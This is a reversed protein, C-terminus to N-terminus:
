SLRSRRRVGLAMLLLGGAWLSGGENAGSSSCGGPGPPVHIERGQGHLEITRDPQQEGQLRLQLEGTFERVEKPQFTVSLQTTGGPPLEKGPELAEVTFVDSGVVEPVLVRTAISSRNTVTLLTPKISQGLDVWGFDVKPSDVSLISSVMEGSLKVRTVPISDDGERTWAELVLDAHSLGVQQAVYSLLLDCTEGMRIEIQQPISDTLRCAGDPELEFDDKQEGELTYTKVYIPRDLQNQLPFRVTAKKRSLRQTGFDVTWQFDKFGSFTGTAVGQLTRDFVSGTLTKIHVTATRQGAAGKGPKFRLEVTALGGAPPLPLPSKLPNVLAFDTADTGDITVGTISDAVTGDNSVTLSKEVAATPEEMDCTGFIVDQAPVSVGRKGVGLDVKTSPNVAENTTITLKGETRGDSSPTVRLEIGQQQKNKLVPVLQLVDDNLLTQVCTNSAPIFVCFPSDVSLSKIVLPAAGDNQLTLAKALQKFTGNESIPTGFEVPADLATLKSSIGVGDLTILVNPETQDNSTFTVTAPPSLPTTSSPSFVIQLVAPPDQQPLVKLPWTYSDPDKLAFPPAFSPKNIYLPLSGVNKITLSNASSTGIPVSGFGISRSSFVASAVGGQGSLTVTTVGTTTNVTGGTATSTIELQASVLSKSTPKFDINISETTGPDIDKPWALAGLVFADASTGKISIASLRLKATGHNAIILPKSQSNNVEVAGFPLKDDVSIVATAATGMLNIKIPNTGPLKTIAGRYTITLSDSYTAKDLSSPKFNVWVDLSSGVNVQQSAYPGGVMSFETSNNDISVSVIELSEYASAANSLTVKMPAAASDGIRRVGFDLKDSPTFNANPRSSAGSVKLQPSDLAKSSNDVYFQFTTEQKGQDGATFVVNFSLTGGEKSVTRPPNLGEISFSTSAMLPLIGNVLLDADGTNKLTVSQSVRTGPTKAGFDLSPTDISLEPAIAKGTLTVPAIVDPADSTLQLTATWQKRSTPKFSVTVSKATNAPITVPLGEISFPDLSGAPVNYVTVPLATPNKLVLGLTQSTTGVLQDTFALTTPSPEVRTRVTNGTLTITQQRTPKSVGSSLNLQGSWSATVASPSSTATVVLTRSGGNPDLTFSMPDVALTLSTETSSVAATIQLPSPGPNTVTVEKQQPQGPLLDSFAMSTAGLTLPATGVADGSLAIPPFSGGSSSTLQLTADQHGTTTPSFKVSLDRSEGPQLSFAGSPSVIFPTGADGAGKLSLSDVTLLSGGGNFVKVSQPESLTGVEQEAFTLATPTVMPASSRFGTLSIRSAPSCPDDSAVILTDTVFPESTTPAYTVVLNATEGADLAGTSLRTSFSSMVSGLSLSSLQVNGSNKLIITGMASSSPPTGADGPVGADSAGTGGAAPLSLTLSAQSLELRPGTGKGSLPVKLPTSSGDFFVNFFGNYGAPVQPSFKVVFFLSKGPLLTFPLSKKAHSADEISMLAFPATAEAFNIQRSGTTDENYVEITKTSSTSSDCVKQADFVINTSTLDFTRQSGLKLTVREPNPSPPAPDCAALLYLATLLLFQFRKM